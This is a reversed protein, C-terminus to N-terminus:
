SGWGSPAISVAGGCGGLTAEEFARAASARGGQAVERMLLSGERRIRASARPPLRHFRHVSAFDKGVAGRFSAMTSVLLNTIWKCSFRSM